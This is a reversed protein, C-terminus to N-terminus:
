GKLGANKFFFSRYYYALTFMSIVLLPHFIIETWRIFTPFWVPAEESMFVWILKPPVYFYVSVALVRVMFWKSFVIKFIIKIM